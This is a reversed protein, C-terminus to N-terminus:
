IHPRCGGVSELVLRSVAVLDAASLNGFAEEARRFSHQASFFPGVTQCTVPLTPDKRHINGEDGAGILLTWRTLPVNGAHYRGCLASLGVCFDRQPEAGGFACSAIADLPIQALRGSGQHVPFVLGNSEKFRAASDHM